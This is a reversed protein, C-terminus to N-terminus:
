SPAVISLATLSDDSNLVISVLIQNNFSNSSSVTGLTMTFTQNSYSTGDVIRDSGTEAIGNSGNGGAGTNSPFVLAQMNYQHMAGVM